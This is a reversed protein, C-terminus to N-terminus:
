GALQAPPSFAFSSKPDGPDQPDKAKPINLTSYTSTRKWGMEFTVKATGGKEKEEEGGSLSHWQKELIAPFNFVLRHRWRWSSSM